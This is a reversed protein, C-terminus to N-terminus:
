FEDAFSGSQRTYICVCVCVCVYVCELLRCAVCDLAVCVTSIPESISGHAAFTTIKSKCDMGRASRGTSQDSGGCVSVCRTFGVSSFDFPLVCPWIDDTNSTIKRTKKQLNSAPLLNRQHSHRFCILCLIYFLCMKRVLPQEGNSIVIMTCNPQVSFARLHPQHHHHHHLGCHWARSAKLKTEKPLSKYSLPVKQQTIHM